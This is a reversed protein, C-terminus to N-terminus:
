RPDVIIEENVDFFRMKVTLDNERPTKAKARLTAAAVRGSKIDVDVILSIDELYADAIHYGERPVVSFRMCKGSKNKIRGLPRVCITDEFALQFAPYVLSKLLPTDPVPSDELSLWEGRKKDYVLREGGIVATDFETDLLKGFVRLDEGSVEGRLATKARKNNSLLLDADLCYRYSQWAAVDNLANFFFDEKESVRNKHIQAAAAAAAIMAILILGIVAARLTQSSISFFTM